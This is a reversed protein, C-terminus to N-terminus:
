EWGRSILEMRQQFNYMVGWIRTLAHHYWEDNECENKFSTYDIAKIQDAFISVAEEKRITIRFRYDAWDIIEIEHDPWLIELIDIARSKVQFHNEMSNHQVVSLFGHKTFIWM